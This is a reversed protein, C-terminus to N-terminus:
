KTHVYTSFDVEFNFKSTPFLKNSCFNVELIGAGLILNEDQM